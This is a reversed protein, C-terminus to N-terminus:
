WKYEEKSFVSAIDVLDDLVESLNILLRNYTITAEIDKTEIANHPFQEYLYDIFEEVRDYSISVYFSNNKGDM